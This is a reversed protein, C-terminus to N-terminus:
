RRRRRLSSVLGVAALAAPGPAPIQMRFVGSPSDLILWQGNDSVSYAFGPLHLVDAMNPDSTVILQDNHFLGTYTLGMADTFSASWFVDGNNTINPNHPGSVTRGSLLHDSEDNVWVVDNENRMVALRTG